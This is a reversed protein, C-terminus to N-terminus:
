KAGTLTVITQNRDTLYKKAVRQVDQPTLKAYLDYLRNITEPTRRLAVYQAVTGAIAESNNLGLAFSYRLNEKVRELKEVPVPTAAYTQITALVDKRVAAVDEPKKVRALITFLYPDVHNGNDAGFQDVKQEQIVLKQYLDSSQSFALSSLADLAAFDDQEDSYAPVRYSVAFWPLTASPWDVHGTRPGEQPPEAPIAAKYSGRKWSGWDKQVLGQVDAPRVDGAVIITVYEPRYYRDFFQRSYDYENPMNQVDKLFGMTTHKYTHEQFTRARLTEFLRSIPNASNKNYEGLVALTETKFLEPTYDLHQFRDAEMALIAPLDEKSFTTHYATYDDTTYANSAAGATKLVSQYKDPPFEKSGRFMLHEFLHAFGSKGVEVENRSGAQVVIYLSVINPYDTPITIVRLGNPLDNQTYTYPFVKGPGDVAPLLTCTFLLLGLSRLM